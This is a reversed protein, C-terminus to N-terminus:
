GGGIIIERQHNERRARRQAVRAVNIARRAGNYHHRM